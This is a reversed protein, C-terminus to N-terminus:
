IKSGLFTCIHNVTDLNEPVLEHDEVRVGFREELFSILELIGMSDVLGSDFFSQDGPIARKDNFLFRESIFRRVEKEM